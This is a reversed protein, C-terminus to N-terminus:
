DTIDRYLKEYTRHLWSTPWQSPHIGKRKLRNHENHQRANDIVIYIGAVILLFAWFTLRDHEPRFVLWYGIAQLVFGIYAHHWKRGPWGELRTVEILLWAGSLVGIILLFTLM